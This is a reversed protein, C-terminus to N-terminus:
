IFEASFSVKIVAMFPFDADSAMFLPYSYFVLLIFVLCCEYIRALFATRQPSLRPRSGEESVLFRPSPKARCECLVLCVEKKMGLSSPLLDQLISLLLCRGGVGAQSGISGPGIGSNMRTRVTLTQNM